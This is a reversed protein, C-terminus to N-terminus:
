SRPRRRGLLPPEFAWCGQEHGTCGDRLRMTWGGEHVAHHHAVCLIAMNPLDTPGRDEWPLVHHAECRGVHAHCGPFACRRDRVELARRLRATVTREARGAHLVSRAEARVADVLAV